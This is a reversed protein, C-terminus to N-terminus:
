NTYPVVFTTTHQQDWFLSMVHTRLHWDGCTMEEELEVRERADEPDWLKGCGCFMVMAVAWSHSKSNGYLRGRYPIFLLWDIWCLGLFVPRSSGDMVMLLSQLAQVKLLISVQEHDLRCNSIVTFTPSSGNWGMLVLVVILILLIIWM